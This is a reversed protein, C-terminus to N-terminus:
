RFSRASQKSGRYRLLAPLVTLDSVVAGALALTCYLAFQRTTQFDSLQCLALGLCLMVTSLIVSYEIASGSVAEGDNQAERYRWLIHITDDVIVGLSVLFVFATVLNLPDDVLWIVAFIALLPLANAILAAFLVRLSRFLLFVVGFIIGVSLGLSISLSSMAQSDVSEYVLQASSFQIDYVAKEASQLAALHEILPLASRDDTVLATVIFANGKAAPELSSRVVNEFAALETRLRSAFQLSDVDMIGSDQRQVLVRLPAYVYFEREFRELARSFNSDDPFFVRPDSSVHVSPLAMAGGLASFLLVAALPLRFRRLLRSLGTYVAPRPRRGSRLHTRIAWPAFLLIIVFSMVLSLASVLGLQRLPEFRNLGLSALAVATTLCSVLYPVGVRSLTERVVNSEGGHFASAKALFHCSNALAVILVIPLALITVLNITTGTLTLVSLVCVTSAASAFVSLMLAPWRRFALLLTSLMVFVIAPILLRLDERLGGAVDRELGINALIQTGEGFDRANLLDYTEAQQKGPVLVAISYANTERAVLWQQGGSDRVAQLLAEAPSSKNLGFLFLQDEFVNLSRVEADIRRSQLESELSALDDFLEGISRESAEVVVLLSQQDDRAAAINESAILEPPPATIHDVISGSFVPPRILIAMAAFLLM